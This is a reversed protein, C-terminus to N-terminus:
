IDLYHVKSLWVWEISLWFYVMIKTLYGHSFCM